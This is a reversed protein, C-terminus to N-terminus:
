KGKNRRNLTEPDSPTGRTFDYRKMYNNSNHNPLDLVKEVKKPSESSDNTQVSDKTLIKDLKNKARDLLDRYESIQERWQPDRLVDSKGARAQFIILVFVLTM